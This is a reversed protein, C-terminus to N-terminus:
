SNLNQTSMHMWSISAYLTLHDLFFDSILKRLTAFVVTKANDKESYNERQITSCKRILM